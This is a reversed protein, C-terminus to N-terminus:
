LQQDQRHRRTERTGLNDPVDALSGATNTGPAAGGEPVGAQAMQYQLQMRQSLGPAGPATGLGLQQLIRAQAATFPKKHSQARRAITRMLMMYAGQNAMRLAHVMEPTATGNLIEEIVKRPQTVAALVLGFREIDRDTAGEFNQMIGPQLVQSHDPLRQLAGAVTM